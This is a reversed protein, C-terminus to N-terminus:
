GGVYPPWSIRIIHLLENAARRTAVIACDLGDAALRTAVDKPDNEEVLVWYATGGVDGPRLPRRLTAACLGLARDIVVRGNEGGAWAAPLPDAAEDLVPMPVEEDPTPVYPPNFIFIDVANCLRPALAGLLDGQVADLRSGVGAAAATSLTVRCADRSVDVAVVMAPPPLHRFDAGSRGSGGRLIDLLCSSVTGSGPGLEVVLTAGRLRAADNLLADCLLYTDDSPEYV